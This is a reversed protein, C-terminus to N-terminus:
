NTVQEDLEFAELFDEVKMAWTDLAGHDCEAFDVAGDLIRFPTATVQHDDKRRYNKALQITTTTM